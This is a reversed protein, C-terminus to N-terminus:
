RTYEPYRTMLKKLNVTEGSFTFTGNGNHHILRQDPQSLSLWGALLRFSYLGEQLCPQKSELQCEFNAWCQKILPAQV